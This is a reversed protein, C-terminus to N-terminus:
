KTLAGKVGSIILLGVAVITLIYFSILGASVWTETTTKETVFLFPLFMIVVFVGTYILTKKLAKPNSLINKAGSFVAAVLALGLLIYSIIFMWEMPANDVNQTDATTILMIWLIAGLVGLVLVGIKSIKYM